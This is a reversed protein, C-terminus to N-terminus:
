RFKFKIINVLYNKMKLSIFDNEVSYIKKYFFSSYTLLM